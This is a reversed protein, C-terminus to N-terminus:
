PFFGPDGCGRPHASPPDLGNRMHSPPLGWAEDAWLGPDVAVGLDRCIRAIMEGLPQEAFDADYLDDELREYLDDLLHERDSDAADTEIAREVADRVQAKRRRILDVREGAARRERRDAADQAQTEADRALRAELAVTQRVARAVRSFTLALEAAREPPAELAEDRVARALQMGIEALEELVRIHREV